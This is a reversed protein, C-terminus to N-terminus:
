GATQRRRVKRQALSLLQMVAHAAPILFFFHVIYVYCRETHLISQVVLYYLPVMLVM